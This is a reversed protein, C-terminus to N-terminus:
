PRTDFEIVVPAHDSLRYFYDSGNHLSAKAFFGAKDTGSAQHSCVLAYNSKDIVHLPRPPDASFEIGKATISNTYFFFGDIGAGGSSAGQNTPSSPMMYMSSRTSDDISANFDGGVILGDIGDKDVYQVFDAIVKKTNVEGTYGSTSHLAVVLLKRGKYGFLGACPYRYADVKGSIEPTEILQMAKLSSSFLIPRCAGTDSQNDARADRYIWGDPLKGLLGADNDCVAGRLDLGPETIFGFACDKMLKCLLDHRAEDYAKAITHTSPSVTPGKQMNWTFLKFSM